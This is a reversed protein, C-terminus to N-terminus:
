ACLQEVCRAVGDTWHPLQLGFTESLKGCNLRSNTPRKAPTPFEATTIAQVTVSPRGLKAAEAVIHGAFGHWTTEGTGATHYVGWPIDRLDPSEHRTLLDLIAAALDDAFTPNGHQDAVVRLEPREAALRLMTKVFNAGHASYVWSTRLILHRPNAAAVAIEGALKSQGYTSEANTEDTEVYADLKNGDFVYDTSLHVIPANHSEAAEALAAAGACNVAFAAEQETEAKDVATYAAANVVVDPRIADIQKSLTKRDTLDLEPRGISVIEVSPYRPAAAMLSRAVQGSSGAVLIKMTM